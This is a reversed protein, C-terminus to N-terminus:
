TSRRRIIAASKAGPAGCWRWVFHWPLPPALSVTRRPSPGGKEAAAGVPFVVSAPDQHLAAGLLNAASHSTGSELSPLLGVRLGPSPSGSTSFRTHGATIWNSRL